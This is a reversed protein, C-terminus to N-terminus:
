GADEGFLQRRSEVAAERHMQERHLYLADVLENVQEPGVIPRAGAAVLNAPGRSKETSQSWQVAYVLRGQRQAIEATRMAGGSEASEIVIVARSLGSQLRNRAMLHPTLPAATPAQESIVAGREAIERALEANARPHIVLIGSGLVALTRGGGDLAGRHAGTDCGLALGSVVTINRQALAAALDHAMQYGAESPSRTGVIAVAPDDIPLIRGASCLVPPPNPIGPLIEPYGVEFDCVVQINQDGLEDLQEEVEGLKDRLASIATIQKTDLRLSPLALGQELASLVAPADGFHGILRRFGAPGIGGYWMLAIQALRKDIEAPM